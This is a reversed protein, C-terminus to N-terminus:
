PKEAVKGYEINRSNKGILEERVKRAQDALTKNKSDLMAIISKTIASYSTGSFSIQLFYGTKKTAEESIGAEVGKEALGDLRSSILKDYKKREKELEKLEGNVPKTKEKREKELEAIKDDIDKALKTRYKTKSEIRELVPTAQTVYELLQKDTKVM